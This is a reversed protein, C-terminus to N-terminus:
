PTAEKPVLRAQMFVVSARFAEEADPAQYSKMSHEAYPTIEVFGVSRYLTHAATLFKLSELRVTQYGITRADTMLQELLRRGAGVGRVDPQIYMRQIEAIEPTLAKLCGVGVDRGEHRVLYFRGSPPYFKSRDELDSDVMADVDFVLGYRDAAERAVWRVYETILSRASARTETDNVAILQVAAGTV